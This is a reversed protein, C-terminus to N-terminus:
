PLQPLTDEHSAKQTSTGSPSIAILTANNSTQDEARKKPRKPLATKLEAKAEHFRKRMNLVPEAACYTNSDGLRKLSNSILKSALSFQRTM